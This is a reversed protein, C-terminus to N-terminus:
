EKVEVQKSIIQTVTGSGPLAGAWVLLLEGRGTAAVQLRPATEAQVYSIAGTQSLMPEFGSSWVQGLVLQQQRGSETWFGAVRGDMSPTIQDVLSVLVPPGNQAPGATIQVGGPDRLTRGGGPRTEIRAGYILTGGERGDLWALDFRSGDWAVSPFSQPGAAGTVLLNDPDLRHGDRGIRTAYLDTLSPDAGNSRDDSWVLLGSDPGWAVASQFQDGPGVALPVGQPTTTGAEPDVITGYLELGTSGGASETWVVHFTSGTWTVLPASQEDQDETILFGKPEAVELTSTVHAGYIRGLGSRDDEWAVLFGDGDWAVSPHRQNGPATILPRPSRDVLDGRPGVRAAFLDNGSARRGNWVVLFDEGNWAVAPSDSPVSLDTSLNQELGLTFPSSEAVLDSARPCGTVILGLGAAGAALLLRFGRRIRM